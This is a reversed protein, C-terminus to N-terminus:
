DSDRVFVFQNNGLSNTTKINILTFGKGRFFHFIEEVKAVEFPLGGLWDFWDHTISMGRGQKYEAFVNRWSLISSMLARSFFCPVFVATVFAKGPLGSCYLEKVKKWLRSKRDQDNYLAIFLTGNKNLLSAANELATWMNGTHHLVGWSYVIDFTGLSKIFDKDLVSGEQIKWNPDDPFYRSRLEKTCAVSAPDFDFSHVEAELRRTVLSFLGSGSGIDIVRKGKLTNIGMMDIISQEAIQIRDDNLTSLFSKWNKGFEFRQGSKVETQHTSM